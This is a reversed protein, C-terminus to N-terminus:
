AGRKERSWRVQAARQALRAAPPRGSEEDQRPLSLSELLGALRAAHARQSRLLPNEVPQGTSGDVILPADAMQADIRELADAMSAAKALILMEAPNLAYLDLIERTLRSGASERTKRPV